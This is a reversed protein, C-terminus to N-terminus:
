SNLFLVRSIDIGVLGQAKMGLTFVALQLREKSPYKQVNRANNRSVEFRQQVVFKFSFGPTRGNM